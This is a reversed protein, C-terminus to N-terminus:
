PDFPVSFLDRMFDMETGAGSMKWTLFSKRKLETDKGINIMIEERHRNRNAWQIDDTNKKGGQKDEQHNKGNKKTHRKCISTRGNKDKPQCNLQKPMVSTVLMDKLIM